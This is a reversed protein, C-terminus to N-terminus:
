AVHWITVADAITAGSAVTLVTVAPTAKTGAPFTVVPNPTGIVDTGVKDIENRPGHATDVTMRATSTGTADFHIEVDRLSKGEPATVTYECMWAHMGVFSGQFKIRHPNSLFIAISDAPFPADSMVVWNSYVIGDVTVSAGHLKSMEMSGGAPITTMVM